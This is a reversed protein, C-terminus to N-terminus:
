QSTLKGSHGRSRGKAKAEKMKQILWEDRRKLAEQRHEATYKFFGEGAQVGLLGREVNDRLLKPVAYRADPREPLHELGHMVIRAGGFDIIQLPGMIPLRLGLTLRAATDIDEASAVGEELMRLAEIM